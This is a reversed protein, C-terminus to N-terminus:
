DHEYNHISSLYALYKLAQNESFGVERMGEFIEHLEALSMLLFDSETLNVANSTIDKDFDDPENKEPVFGLNTCKSVNIYNWFESVPLSV